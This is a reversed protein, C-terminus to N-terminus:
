VAVPTMMEEKLEKMLTFAYNYSIGARQALERLGQPNHSLEPFKALTQAFRERGNAPKEPKPEVPKSEKAKTGMIAAELERIQISLEILSISGVVMLADVAAPLLYAQLQDHTEHFIADRQHFYSIVASIGAIAGTGSVRVAKFLLSREKPLPIRSVLEFAAALFSPAALAILIDVPTKEAHLVNGGASAIFGALMVTRSFTRLWTLGELKQESLTKIQPNNRKRM